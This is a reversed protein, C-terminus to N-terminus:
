GMCLVPSVARAVVRSTDPAAKARRGEPPKAVKGLGRAMATRGALGDTAPSSITACGNPAGAMRSNGRRHGRAALIEMTNGALIPWIVAHCPPSPRMHTMGGRDGGRVRRASLVSGRLGFPEADANGAM